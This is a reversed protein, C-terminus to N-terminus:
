SKEAEEDECVSRVVKAEGLYDHHSFIELSAFITIFLKEIQLSLGPSFYHRLQVFVIYNRM